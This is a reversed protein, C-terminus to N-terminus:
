PGFRTSWGCVSRSDSSQIAPTIVVALAILAVWPTAWSHHAAGLITIPGIGAVWLLTLSWIVLRSRPRWDNPIPGKALTEM